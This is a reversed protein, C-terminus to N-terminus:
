QRSQEAAGYHGEGQACKKLERLALNPPEGEKWSSKSVTVAVLLAFVAKPGLRHLRNACVALPASMAFCAQPDENFFPTDRCFELDEVTVNQAAQVNVGSAIAAVVLCVVCLSRMYM